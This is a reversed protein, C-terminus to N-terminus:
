LQIKKQGNSTDVIQNGMSSTTNEYLIIVFRGLIGASILLKKPPLGAIEVEVGM